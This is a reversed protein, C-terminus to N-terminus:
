FLFKKTLSDDFIGLCNGSKLLKVSDKITILEGKSKSITIDFEDHYINNPIPLEQCSSNNVDKVFIKSIVAENDNIQTEKKLFLSKASPNVNYSVDVKFLEPTSPQELNGFNPLERRVILCSKLEKVLNWASLTKREIEKNNSNKVSVYFGDDTTCDESYAIIESTM